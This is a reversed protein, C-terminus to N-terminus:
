PMRAIKARFQASLARVKAPKRARRARRITDETGGTWNWHSFAVIMDSDDVIRQSRM